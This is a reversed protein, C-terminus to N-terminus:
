DCSPDGGVAGGWGMPRGARGASVKVGGAPSHAEKRLLRVALTAPQSADTLQEVPSRPVANPEAGRFHDRILVLSQRPLFRPEDVHYQVLHNTIRMQRGKAPQADPGRRHVVCGTALVLGWPFM